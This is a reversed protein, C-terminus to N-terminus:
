VQRANKTWTINKTLLYFARGKRGKEELKEENVNIGSKDQLKKYNLM